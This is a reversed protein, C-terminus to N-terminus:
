TTKPILKQPTWPRELREHLCSIGTQYRRYVTTLSSGQL